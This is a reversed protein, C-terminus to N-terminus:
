SAVPGESGTPWKPRSARADQGADLDLAGMHSDLRGNKAKGRQNRHEAPERVAQPFRRHKTLEEEYARIEDPSTAMLMNKEYPIIDLVALKLDDAAQIRTVSGQILEGLTTNLSGLSSICLWAVVGALATLITFNAALKLKIPLRM